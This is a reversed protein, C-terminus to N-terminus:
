GDHREVDQFSTFSKLIGMNATVPRMLLIIIILGQRVVSSQLKCVLFMKGCLIDEETM